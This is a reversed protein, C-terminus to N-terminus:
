TSCSSTRAATPPWRGPRQGTTAMGVVAFRPDDEIVSALTLLMERHDDAVVVRLREM